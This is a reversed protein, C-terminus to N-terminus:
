CSTVGGAVVWAAATTSLALAYGVLAFSLRSPVRGGGAVRVAAVLWAVTAPFCALVVLAVLVLTVQQTSISAGGCYSHAENVTFPAALAFRLQHGGVVGGAAAALFAGAAGCSSSRAQIRSAMVSLLPLALAAVLLWFRAVARPDIAIVVALGSAAVVALVARERGTPPRVTFQMSM